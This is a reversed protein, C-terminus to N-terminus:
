LNKRLLAILGEVPLPKSFLYGQMEPYDKPGVVLLTGATLGLTVLTGAASHSLTLRPTLRSM